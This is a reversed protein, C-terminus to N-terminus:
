ATPTALRWMEDDLCHWYTLQKANCSAWPGTADYVIRSSRQKGGGDADEVRSSTFTGSFWENIETWFVEVRTGATLPPASPQAAVPRAQEEGWHELPSDVSLQNGWMAIADAADMVPLSTTRATDIRKIAMMKDIWLAYEQKSMRAYIKLSDPNLWRGFAQIRADSADCMRLSSALWVRWSHPSLLQARAAGVVHTLAAMILAAFTSDHYPKGEPTPFLPLSVRQQGHAPWRRELDRLWRAANLPEDHFPLVIPETGHCTGYQDCKAGKPALLAYDGEGMQDLIAPPPDTYTRGKIDFTLAARNFWDNHDVDGPLHTSEGKRSGVSLNIVMWATVVFCTWDTLAWPKGKIIASGETAARVVAGIIAPTVPEVRCPRLKEIGYRRVFRRLLGRLTERVTGTPPLEVDRARFVRRLALFNQYISMPKAAAAKKSRPVARQARFLLFAALKLSEREPFARTWETRLNPDFNWLAAFAEFERLAFADKSATRPNIGDARAEAVALAMDELAQPAAGIRGESKDRVLRQVFHKAHAVQDPRLRSHQYAPRLYPHRGAEHFPPEVGAPIAGQPGYQDCKAGKPGLLAYDGEGMQHLIAPPPDTYTHGKIDFTVHAWRPRFTGADFRMTDVAAPHRGGARGAWRPRFAGDADVNCRQTDGRYDEAPTLPRSLSCTAPEVPHGEYALSQGRYIRDCACKVSDQHPWGGMCPAEPRCTVDWIPSRSCLWANCTREGGYDQLATGYFTRFVNRCASRRLGEGCRSCHHELKPEHRGCWLAHTPRAQHTAPPPALLGHDGWLTPLLDLLMDQLAQAAEAAPDPQPVGLYDLYDHLEALFAQVETIPANSSSAGGGQHGGNSSTPTVQWIAPYQRDTSSWPSGEDYGELEGQSPDGHDGAKSHITIVREKPHVTRRMVQIATVSVQTVRLYDEELADMMGYSELERHYCITFTSAICVIPDNTPPHLVLVMRITAAEGLQDQNVIEVWRMYDVRPIILQHSGLSGGMHFHATRRITPNLSAVLDVHPTAPDIGLPKLLLYALASRTPTNPLHYMDGERRTGPARMVQGGALRDLGLDYALHCTQPPGKWEWMPVQAARAASIHGHGPLFPDRLQPVRQHLVLRVRKTLGRSDPGTSLQLGMKNLGDVCGRYGRDVARLALIGDMDLPQTLLRVLDETCVETIHGAGRVRLMPQAVGPRPRPYGPPNAQRQLAALQAQLGNVFWTVDTRSPTSSQM